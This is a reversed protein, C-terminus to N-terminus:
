GKKYFTFAIGGNGINAFGGNLAPLFAILRCYIRKFLGLRHKLL